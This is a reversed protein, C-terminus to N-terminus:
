RCLRMAVVDLARDYSAAEGASLFGQKAVFRDADRRIRDVENWLTRAQPQTLRRAKRANGIDAQLINARMSLHAQRSDRIAGGTAAHLHHQQALNCSPYDRRMSQASANTGVLTALLTLLIAKRTM